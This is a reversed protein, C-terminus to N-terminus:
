QTSLESPVRSSLTSCHVKMWQEAYHMSELNQAVIVSDVLDDALLELRDRSTTMAGSM